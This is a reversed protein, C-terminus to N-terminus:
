DDAGRYKRMTEERVLAYGVSNFNWESVEEFIERAAEENGAGEEALGLHYKVYMENLNAARFHQAADEYNGQELDILGLLDHYAELKRPNNDTAVLRKFEAALANAEELDGRRAALKGQWLIINAEDAKQVATSGVDEGIARVVESRRQLIKEAEAFRDHHLAIMAENHLTFALASRKRDEAISLQDIGAAIEELERLAADIDGEHISTFARYNAYTPRVDEEAVALAADYARRAEAYNGLFSNIHGVKLAAVANNEDMEVARSYAASALELKGQARMVDGLYEYGKGLEPRLEIFKRMNAESRAFNKPESFLYQFGLMTYAVPLEPDLHIARSIADRAEENRNLSGLVYALDLHARPSNPYLETLEESLQLRKETDNELYTQHIAVLLREGESADGTAAVAADLHRRFEPFSGAATAARLHALVFDPDQETALAFRTRAEVEDGTDMAERGALFHELAVESSTTIPIEEVALPGEPEAEAASDACGAILAAMAMLAVPAVAYFTRRGVSM